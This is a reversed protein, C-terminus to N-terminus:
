RMYENFAWDDMEMPYHTHERAARYAFFEVPKIKWKGTDVDILGSGDFDFLKYNGHIDKGINDPKWDMYMIGLGQLFDKAKKMERKAKKLEINETDLMEIDVYTENVEYYSVINTHPHNMLIKIIEQEHYAAQSMDIKSKDLPKEPYWFVKRFFPVGDHTEDLETIEGYEMRKSGEIFHKRTKQRRKPLNNKNM